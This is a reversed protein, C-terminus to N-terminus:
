WHINQFSLIKLTFALIINHRFIVDELTLYTSIVMMKNISVIFRPNGAYRIIQKNIVESRHVTQWIGEYSLKLAHLNTNREVKSNEIDKIWNLDYIKKLVAM